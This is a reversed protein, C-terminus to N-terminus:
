RVIAKERWDLESLEPAPISRFINREQETAEQSISKPRNM